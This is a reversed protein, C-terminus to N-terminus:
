SIASRSKPPIANTARPTARASNARATTPPPTPEADLGIARFARRLPGRAATRWPRSTSASRAPPAAAEHGGTTVPLM